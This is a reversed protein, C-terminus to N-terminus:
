SDTEGETAADQAKGMKEFVLHEDKADALITDGPGFEGSLIKNAVPNALMRTIVRRLPRAGFAPDYGTEALLVRAGDALELRIDQDGLRAEVKAVLLDVIKLLDDRTLAHFVIIEDIRNLFEPRFSYRLEEMAAARMKEYLEDPTDVDARESITMIRDAAINSTMIIITNRFDVTKGHSDTLRGDDLMQLLINFVDPHAKEIEDLLVVSYPRRRVAETLQGGEDYGVYGPPAGVLRSVTHREQYESMDIRVTAEEDGYLFEALAKALETKGVGTPGLFIFSGIPQNPDKLGARASRVAQSVANVAIDQGVIRRHLEDEMRMLKAQEEETLESVPIGTWKSVVEAIHEATVVTSVEQEKKEAEWKEKAEDLKAKLELNEVHLKNATEFDNNAIADEKERELRAVEAQIDELDPPVLLNSLHVRASAEDILDIAKDPLFRDAIYRASLKAAAEVAEDSITVRHHAQYNERLGKLIEITEEVTPEDVMVPQFRRELAADKEVYKRYEDLTTAGIAQLDGRALAPKLINAADVSGEAAGAGVLTHMEDIFLIYDGSAIIEDIVNKLREEFEGRFKTGAVLGGMDLAVVQKDILLEPVGRDVIKQALGEVIATKGVGPDGILVPNNKTRRSLIQIVREIEDERGIVPDLKGKEALETLNRSFTEVAPAEAGAPAGYKGTEKRGLLEFVKARIVKPDAGQGVLARYATGSTETLLGLLMHESGVEEANMEQATDVAYRVANKAKPSFEIVAGAAGPKAATMTKVAAYLKDFSLASQELARAAISGRDRALGLLIHETGITASGFERAFEQASRIAEQARNSFYEEM